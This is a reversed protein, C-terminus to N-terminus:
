VFDSLVEDWREAMRRVDLHERVLDRQRKAEQSRTTFDRLESLHATWEEDSSALRGIGYLEQLRKYEGVNSGVFPVGAAAYEIGKIWSKAHNFPIDNLPAVGVDFQFSLKCYKRPDHMATKAVREEPLGVKAAFTTAGHVHGSHHFRFNSDQLVNSLLELDGSRHSTSGVWGVIPKRSKHHRRQFDDVSVCNHIRYVKKIKFDEAMREELFPTSVTVADSMQLITKYFEINEENNHDPHTLKFAANDKHLGWYWDDVDNIIPKNRDAAMNQILAGFMARQMVIVDVDYHAKRRWDMVGFGQKPHHMLLGTVSDFKSYKRHQQIRIWNSGGPVPGDNVTMSRSWDTTAYGIKIPRAM